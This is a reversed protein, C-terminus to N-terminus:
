IFLNIYLVLEKINSKLAVQLMYMNDSGQVNFVGKMRYIESETGEEWLLEGLWDNVQWVM